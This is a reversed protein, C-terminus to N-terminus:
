NQKLDTSNPIGCDYGFALIWYSVLNMFRYNLDSIETPVLTQPIKYIHTIM